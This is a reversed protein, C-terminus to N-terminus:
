RSAARGLAILVSPLVARPRAARPLRQRQDPRESFRETFQGSLDRGETVM